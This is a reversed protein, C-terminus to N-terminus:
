KRKEKLVNKYEGSVYAEYFENRSSFLQGNKEWEKTMAADAAFMMELVEDYYYKGQHNQVKRLIQIIDEQKGTLGDKFKALKLGTLMTTIEQIDAKLSLRLAADDLFAKETTNYTSDFETRSSFLNGYQNWYDNRCTCQPLSIDAIWIVLQEESYNNCRCELKLNELVSKTEPHLRLYIGAFEKPKDSKLQQYCNVMLESTKQKLNGVISDTISSLKPNMFFHTMSIPELQRRETNYPYDLLQKNCEEWIKQVTTTAKEYAILYPRYHEFDVKVAALGNHFANFSWGDGDFQPSIVVKGTKDVYGWKGNVKIPALGESFDCAMDFSPRIVMKGTKDVYGWKDDIDVAALGEHFDEAYDFILPIVIKGSKDIFGSKEINGREVDIWERIVVAALGESFDNAFDFQASIIWKGTSDIYGCGGVQNYSVSALGEKFPGAKAFQPSVIVKGTKDIYGREYGINLAAIGESFLSIWQFEPHIRIVTKGKKDIFQYSGGQDSTKVLALGEAFDWAKYLHLPIVVNGVYDIYGCNTNGYDGEVEVAALGEHFSMFDRKKFQPQIVMKGTIDVYGIKKNVEVAALGESFGDAYDFQPPIVWNGTKDIFGWKYDQACTSLVSIILLQALAFVVKKM